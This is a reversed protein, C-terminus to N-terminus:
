RVRTWLRTQYWNGTPGTTGYALSITINQDLALGASKLTERPLVIWTGNNLSGLVGPATFKWAQDGAGAAFTEQFIQWTRSLASDTLRLSTYMTGGPAGVPFGFVSEVFAEVIVGARDPVYHVTQPVGPTAVALNTSYLANEAYATQGGGGGTELARLRREAAALRALTALEPNSGLLLDRAPDLSM